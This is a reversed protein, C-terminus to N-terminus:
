KSNLEYHVGQAEWASLCGAFGLPFQKRQWTWKVEKGTKIGPGPPKLKFTKRIPLVWKSVKKYGNWEVLIAKPMYELVQVPGGPRKSSEKEHVVIRKVIGYTGINIGEEESLRTQCRVRMGEYLLLMPRLRDTSNPNQYRIKKLLLTM